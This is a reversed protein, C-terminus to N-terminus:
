PNIAKDLLNILKCIECQEKNKDVHLSIKFEHNKHKDKFAIKKIDEGNTDPKLEITGQALANRLHRLFNFINKDEPETPKDKKMYNNIYNCKDKLKNFYAEFDESAITEIFSNKEHVFVLLGLLSNITQTVSFEKSDDNLRYDDLNTKTRNFFGRVKNRDFNYKPDKRSYSM